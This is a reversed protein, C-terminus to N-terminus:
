TLKDTNVRLKWRPSRGNLGDVQKQLVETMGFILVIGNAYLLISLSKNDSMLVGCALGSIEPVLDHIFLALIPALVDWKRDGALQSFWDTLRGGVRVCNQLNAYMTQSIKLMKEHIGCALLKYWLTSDSSVCGGSMRMAGVQQSFM